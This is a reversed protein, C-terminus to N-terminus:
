KGELSSMAEMLTPVRAPKVEEVVTKPGEKPAEKPDVAEKIPKPAPKPDAVPAPEPTETPAPAEDEMLRARLARLLRLSEAYKAEALRARRQWKVADTRFDEAVRKLTDYRKGGARAKLEDNEAKLAAVREALHVAVEAGTATGAMASRRTESKHGDGVSYARAKSSPEPAKAEVLKPAPPQKSEKTPEAEAAEKEKHTKAAKDEEPEKKGGGVLDSVKGAVVKGLALLGGRLKSGNPSNDAGLRDLITMVRSLLDALPGAAKGTNIVDELERVLAEAATVTEPDVGNGGPPLSREEPTPPEGAIEIGGAAPIEGAQERLRHLAAMVSQDTVYDWTTLQFDDKVDECGDGGPMTEGDGRSSCGVACGCRLFEELTLGEHTRFVLIDGVVYDGPEVGSKHGPGVAEIHVAEILHSGKSLDSTGSAPHELQGIVRREALRRMFPSDAKFNNEWVSRGYRRKNANPKGVAQLIQNKLRLRPVGDGFASRDWEMQVPKAFFPATRETIIGRPM